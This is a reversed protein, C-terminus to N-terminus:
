VRSPGERRACVWDDLADGLVYWAGTTSISAFAAPWLARAHLGSGAEGLLSGWTAGDPTTSIGLFAVAAELGVVAAASFAASVLVPGWIHPMVHRRIVGSTSGGLARAALLFESGSVRLVEGRVLRAMQVTRLASLVVVFGFWGPLLGSVHVLTLLVVTPLAGTLEVSRALVADPLTTGVGALTGLPIGFALAVVVVVLTTLMVSRTGHILVSLVDRSAADTGLPHGSAPGALPGIAARTTPGARVPAWVVWADEGLEHAIDDSSRGRVSPETLAPLVWWTGNGRAVLPAESALLDAFVGVLALLALLVAAVRAPWRRLSIL